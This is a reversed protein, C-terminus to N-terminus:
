AGKIATVPSISAAQRAPALIALQGLIWFTVAGIGLYWAPLRPLEYFKMLGLNMAWALVMGFAIGLSVILFNEIQFYRLIDGRTAGLARRIGIQKRRQTVWFSALGIIGLATTGLLAVIVGLLLAATVVASEFYRTRLEPLSHSQDANLIADAAATRAMKKAELMIRGMDDPRGRVLYTGALKPGAAAPVFVSWDADESEGGGPANVSLHDIVGIVRFATDVAWIQQGLPNKGPWFHAALTRTILIPPHAPVYHNIEAYEDPSPLRGAVLHLGFTDIAAADAVYFDIVGGNEKQEQDLFVGARVAQEGFPVANVVSVVRVGAVGRLTTLMRANLDNAQEPTFGSLKVVGLSPEDIGSDIRLADFRQAVLFCANCLVATALAIQLAILFTAIRHKRLAALIYRTQM